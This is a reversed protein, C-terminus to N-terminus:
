LQTRIPSTTQTSYPDRGGATEEALRTLVGHMGGAAHAERMRDAGGGERLIREIEELADEGDLERAYPRALELTDAAVERIPTLRGRWWVTADLGDRGARFSSEMLAEAPPAIEDAGDACAAALARVLAALGAVSELRSQADMARLEVTGLNPHPRIDWWLFTYDPLDGATQWWAVLDAYEDWSAFAPPVLARPFGRFMQARATAFGSDAGHWYPSHAALAQLLPLFARLRNHVAIATAPDPMGVHVHLACTPTRRLLGQMSEAIDLYRRESVHVVDGFAGTPHLGAGLLTAGATRLAARLEGLAAAGEDASGVIPTANELLAEYVDPKIEGRTPEVRAIVESARHQLQLTDPDVLLLEEELGLSLPAARGFAHEVGPFQIAALTGATM